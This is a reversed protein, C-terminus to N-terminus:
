GRGHHGRGHKERQDGLCKGLEDGRKGNCAEHAKQRMELRQAHKQQHQAKMCGTLDEGRKGSCAEHMKQRDESRKAHHEGRKKAHEFCQKPDSAKSCMQETMCARRDSKDKCAERAAKMGERMKGHDAGHSMGGPPTMQAQAFGATLAFSAAALVTAFRNM